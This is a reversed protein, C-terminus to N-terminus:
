KSIAKLLREALEPSLQLLAEYEKMALEKNGLRSYVFGLGFHAERDTANDSIMQKYLEIAEETRDTLLYFRALVPNGKRPYLQAFQKLIDIADENRGLHQYIASMDAYADQYDPKLKVAYRLLGIARLNEETNLSGLYMHAHALGLYAEASDPALKIAQEFAEIEERTHNYQGQIGHMKCYAEGLKMYAEASDPKLQIARKFSAVANAPIAADMLYAEGLKFHAEASEPNAAVEAKLAEIEKSSDLSFNFTITGVVKVPKGDIQTGAFKWERAAAVAADKLLPHGSIARASIVNGDEDITVEVVVSGSVQAAKALPPYAPEVRRIAAGQIAGGSKRLIKPPQPQNDQSRSGQATSVFCLSVIVLTLITKLHLQSSKM